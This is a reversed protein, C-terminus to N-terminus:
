HVIYRYDWVESPHVEKYKKGRKVLYRIPMRSFDTYKFEVIGPVVYLTGTRGILAINVHVSLPAYLEITDSISIGFYNPYLSKISDSQSAVVLDSSILENNNKVIISTDEQATIHIFMVCAILLLSLKKM